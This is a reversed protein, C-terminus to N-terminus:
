LLKFIVKYLAAFCIKREASLFSNVLFVAIHHATQLEQEVPGTLM